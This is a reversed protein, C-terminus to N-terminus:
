AGNAGKWDENEDNEIGLDALVEKFPNDLMTYSGMRDGGQWLVKAEEESIDTAVIAGKQTSADTAFLQQGYDVMVNSSMLPSLVSLLCMESRVKPSLPELSAAEAQDRFNALSFMEDVISSLCRRYLLASVWGGALRAMLAPAVNKLSAVRLSVTALGIRKALPAAVLTLGKTTVEERSDIEAGAAQFLREAAVDKEPSGPLDHQQYLERAEQLIHFAPSDEARCGDAQSSIVFLDDIILGRWIPGMGVPEKGVLREREPLLNGEHLLGEHGGLAYEVGLHDGQFLAGLAPYLEPPLAKKRPLKELGLRDGVEERPGRGAGEWIDLFDEYARTGRFMEAPFSFPVLNTASRQDSVRCQHYFDRRDTIAGRLHNGPAVHLATLMPGSPLQSSPGTPHREMYNVRRRDGIMRDHSLSKFANFVKVYAGEEIPFPHLKLLGLEEWRMALKWYEQKDEHHFVPVPCGRTSFGHFLFAPEEYPLWLPGELYQSLPWRGGGSLKLRSADLSRFPQLQPFAELTKADLAQPVFVEDERRSYKSAFEPTSCLFTELRSLTAILEPGSRGPALPLEESRSGCAAVYNFLRRIIRQQLFGPPRRILDLDCAHGGHLYNLAMCVLHVLRRLALDKLRKRSLGPGSSVFSDVFPIPLPFVASHRPAGRRSASFTQVLFWSFPCKTKLIMRPLALAWGVFETKEELLQLANQATDEISGRSGCRRSSSQEERKRSGKAKSLRKRAWAPDRLRRWTSFKVFSGGDDRDEKHLHYGIRQHVGVSNYGVEPRGSALFSPVEVAPLSAQQYLHCSTSRGDSYSDSGFRSPRSRFSGTGADSCSTSFFGSGGACEGSSPLGHVAHSPTPHSGLRPVEWIRRLAGLLPQRVSRPVDDGSLEYHHPNNSVNEQVHSEHCERLFPRESLGSRGAVEGERHSGESRSRRTNDAGDNPRGTTLAASQALMATALDPQNELKDLELNRVEPPQSSNVLALDQMKSVGKKAPPTQLERAVDSM